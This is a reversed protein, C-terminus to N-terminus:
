PLLGTALLLLLQAAMNLGDSHLAGASTFTVSQQVTIPTQSVALTLTNNEQDTIVYTTTSGSVSKTQNAM